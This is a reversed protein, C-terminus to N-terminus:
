RVTMNNKEVLKCGPISEGAKLAAAIAKKDPQTTTKTVIYDAPCESENVEVATSKRWSVVGETCEYKEGGLERELDAKLKNAKCELLAQRGKLYKIENAIKEADSTYNKYLKVSNHIIEDKSIQLSEFRRQFAEPDIIEGTDPDVYSEYLKFIANDVWYLNM